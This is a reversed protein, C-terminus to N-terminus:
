PPMQIFHTNVDASDLMPEPSCHIFMASHQVHEDLFMPIRLGSPGKETSQQGFKVNRLDNMGIFEAAVSSSQPFDRYEVTDLVPLDNRSCTTVVKDLLRM